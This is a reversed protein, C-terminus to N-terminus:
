GEVHQTAHTRARAIPSGRRGGSGGVWGQGEGRYKSREGEWIKPPTINRSNPACASYM